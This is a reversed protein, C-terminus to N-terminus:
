VHTHLGIKLIFPVQLQVYLYVNEIQILEVSLYKHWESLGLRHLLSVQVPLLPVTDHRCPVILMFLLQM